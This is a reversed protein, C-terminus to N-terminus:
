PSITEPPAATKPSGARQRSSVTEPSRDAGPSSDGGPSRSAKDKRAIEKIQLRPESAGPMDTEADRGEAPSDYRYSTRVSTVGEPFRWYSWPVALVERLVIKRLHEPIEGLVVEGGLELDRIAPLFDKTRDRARYIRVSRLLEWIRKRIWGRGPHLPYIHRVFQTHYVLHADAEVLWLGDAQGDRWHRTLWRRHQRRESDPTLRRYDIWLERYHIDTVLWEIRGMEEGEDARVWVELREWDPEWLKNLEAPYLTVFRWVWYLRGELWYPAHEPRYPFDDHDPDNVYLYLTPPLPRPVFFWEALYFILACGAMGLLFPGWDAPPMEGSYRLLFRVAFVPLPALFATLLDRFIFYLIAFLLPYVLIEFFPMIASLFAIHGLLSVLLVTVLITLLAAIFVKYTPYFLSCIVGLRDPNMARAREDGSRDLVRVRLEGEGLPSLSLEFRSMAQQFSTDVKVRSRLIFGLQAVLHSTVFLPGALFTILYYRLKPLRARPRDLGNRFLDLSVARRKLFRPNLLGRLGLVSAWYDCYLYPGNYRPIKM